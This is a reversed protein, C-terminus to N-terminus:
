APTYQYSAVVFASLSLGAPLPVIPIGTLAIPFHSHGREDHRLAQRFIYPM